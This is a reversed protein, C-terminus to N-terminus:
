VNAKDKIIVYNKLDVLQKKLYNTIKSLVISVFLVYCSIIVPILSILGRIINGITGWGFITIVNAIKLLILLAYLSHKLTKNKIRGSFYLFGFAYIITILRLVWTFWAYIIINKSAKDLNKFLFIELLVMLISLILLVLGSILKFKRIKNKLSIASQKIDFFRFGAKM